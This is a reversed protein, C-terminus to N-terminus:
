LGPGPRAAEDRTLPTERRPRPLISLRNCHSQRVSKRPHDLQDPGRSDDHPSLVPSLDRRSQAAIRRDRGGLRLAPNRRELHRGGFAPALPLRRGGGGPELDVRERGPELVRAPDAHQRVAVHERGLRQRQRLRYIGDEVVGHRRRHSPGGGHSFAGVADRKQPVGIVVADGLGPVHEEVPQVLREAHRQEAVREVDAIRIAHDDEGILRARGAYGLRAAPQGLVVAAPVPGAAQQEGGVLGLEIDPDARQGIDGVLAHRDFLPAGGDM